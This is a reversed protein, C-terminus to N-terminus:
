PGAPDLNRLPARAQAHEASFYCAKGAATMLGSFAFIVGALGRRLQELPTGSFVTGPRWSVLTAPLICRFVMSIASASLILGSLVQTNWEALFPQECNNLPNWLPLEMRWFSERLHWAIPASFFGFRSVCVNSARSLGKALICLDLHCSFRCVPAVYDM